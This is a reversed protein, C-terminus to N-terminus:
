GLHYSWSIQETRNFLSAPLSDLTEAFQTPISKWRNLLYNPPLLKSTKCLLPLMPEWRKKKAEAFTTQVHLLMLKKAGIREALNAGRRLVQRSFPTFDPIAVFVYEPPPAGEKPEVFLFLDCPADRLLSRAVDGTFNRHVSEQELAGAILLDIQQESQVTLIAESPPGTQFHIPADESLKLSRLTGRFREVKDSTEEAAHILHLPVDFMGSIRGAEALVDRFRPSFTTAVGARRYM